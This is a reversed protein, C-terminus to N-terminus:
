PLRHQLAYAGIRVARGTDGYARKTGCEYRGVLIGMRESLAAIVRTPAYVLETSGHKYSCISACDQM